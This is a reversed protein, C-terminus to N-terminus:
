LGSAICTFKEPNCKEVLALYVFDIGALYVLAVKVTENFYFVEHEALSALHDDIGAFFLELVFKTAYFATENRQLRNDADIFYFLFTHCRDALAVIYGRKGELEYGPAASAALRFLSGS